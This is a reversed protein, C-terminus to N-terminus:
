NSWPFTFKHCRIGSSHIWPLLVTLETEFLKTGYKDVQILNTGILVSVICIQYFLMSIAETSKHVSKGSCIFCVLVLILSLKM